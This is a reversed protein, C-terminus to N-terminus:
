ADMKMQCGVHIQVGCRGTPCGLPRAPGHGLCEGLGWSVTYKTRIYCAHWALVSMLLLAQPGFPVCSRNPHLESALLEMHMECHKISFLILLIIIYSLSIADLSWSRSVCNPPFAAWSMRNHIMWPQKESAVFSCLPWRLPWMHCWQPVLSWVVSGLWLKQLTTIFSHQPM